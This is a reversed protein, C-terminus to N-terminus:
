LQELVRSKIPMTNLDRVLERISECDEFWEAGKGEVRYQSFKQHLKTEIQRGANYAVTLIKLSSSKFENRLSVMRQSLNKSIGIKITSDSEDSVFYVHQEDTYLPEYYLHAADFRESCYMRSYLAGSLRDWERVMKDEFLRQAFSVYEKSVDVKRYLPLFYELYGSSTFHGSPVDVSVKELLDGESREQSAVRRGFVTYASFRSCFEDCFARFLANSAFHSEQKELRESFRPSKMVSHMVACKEDDSMKRFLCLAEYKYRNM